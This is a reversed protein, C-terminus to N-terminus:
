EPKEKRKFKTEFFGPTAKSIRIVNDELLDYILYWIAALAIPIFNVIWSVILITNPHYQGTFLYGTNDYSSTFITRLAGTIRFNVEGTMTGMQMGVIFGVLLNFLMFKVVSISRNKKEPFVRKTVFAGIVCALIIPLWAILFYFAGTTFMINTVPNVDFGLFPVFHHFFQFNTLYDFDGVPQPFGSGPMITILLGLVYIIMPAFVWAGSSLANGFDIKQFYFDNQRDLDPAKVKGANLGYNIFLQAFYTPASFIAEATWGLRAINLVIMMFVSALYYCLLWLGTPGIYDLLRKAPFKSAEKWTSAIRSEAPEATEKEIKENIISM